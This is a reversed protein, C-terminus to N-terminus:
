RGLEECEVLCDIGAFPIKVLHETAKAGVDRERWGLSIVVECEEVPSCASPKPGDRDTNDAGRNELLTKLNSRAPDRLKTTQSGKAADAGPGLNEVIVAPGSSPDHQHQIVLIHIPLITPFSNKL